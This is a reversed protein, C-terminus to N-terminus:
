GTKRTSHLALLLSESIPVSAGGGGGGGGGPGWFLLDERGGFCLQFVLTYLMTTCYILVGFHHCLEDTKSKRDVERRFFQIQLIVLIMPLALAAM